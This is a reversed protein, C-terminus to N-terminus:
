LSKSLLSPWLFLPLGFVAWCGAKYIWISEKHTFVLYENEVGGEAVALLDGTTFQVRGFLYRQGELQFAETYIDNFSAKRYGTRAVELRYVLYGFGNFIRHHAAKATGYFFVDDNGSLGELVGLPGADM